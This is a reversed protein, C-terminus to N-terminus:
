GEEPFMREASGMGIITETVDLAKITLEYRGPKYVPCPRQIEKFRDKAIVKEDAYPMQITGHDHSYAHDYMRIELFKTNGPVGSIQIEPHGWECPKLGEWTFEVILEAVYPSMKERDCGFLLIALIFLALLFTPKM